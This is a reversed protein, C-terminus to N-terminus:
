ALPPLLLLAHLLHFLLNGELAINRKNWVAEYM